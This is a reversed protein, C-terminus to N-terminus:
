KEIYGLHSPVIKALILTEIHQGINETVMWYTQSNALSPKALIPKARGDKSVAIAGVPVALQDFLHAAAKVDRDSGSGGRLFLRRRM